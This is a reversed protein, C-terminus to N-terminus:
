SNQIDVPQELEVDLVQEVADVHFGAKEFVGAM